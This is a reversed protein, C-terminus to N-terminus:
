MKDSRAIETKVSAVCNSYNEQIENAKEESGAINVMAKWWKISRPSRKWNLTELGDDLKWVYLYDYEGTNMALEMVPTSVGAESAAKKFYDNIIKRAEGQKGNKYAVHVIQYWESNEYKMPETEQASIECASILISFIIISKFLRM